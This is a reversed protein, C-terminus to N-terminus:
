PIWVGSQWYMEPTIVVANFLYEGAAGGVAVTSWINITDLIIGDYNAQPNLPWLGMHGDLQVDGAWCDIAYLLDLNEIIGTDTDMRTNGEANYIDFPCYPNGLLVTNNGAIDDITSGLASMYEVTGTINQTDGTTGVTAVTIKIIHDEPKHDSTGPAPSVFQASFVIKLTNQGTAPTNLLWAVYAPNALEGDITINAAATTWGPLVEQLIFGQPVAAEDVDVKIYYDTSTAAVAKSQLVREAYVSGKFRERAWAFKGQPELGTTAALDVVLNEGSVATCIQRMVTAIQIVGDADVYAVYYNALDTNVPGFVAFPNADNLSAAPVIRTVGSGSTADKGSNMAFIADVGDWRDSTFIIFKGDYSFSPYRDNVFLDTDTLRIPTGAVITNLTPDITVRVMWIKDGNAGNNKTYVIQTMEPNFCPDEADTLGLGLPTVTGTPLYIAELDGDRVYVGWRGDSSINPQQLAIQPPVLTAITSGFSGDHNMRNIRQQNADDYLVTGGNGALSPNAKVTGSTTIQILGTTSGDLADAVDARSIEIPNADANNFVFRTDNLGVPFEGITTVIGVGWNALGSALNTREFKAGNSQAPILADFNTQWVSVLGTIDAAYFMDGTTDDLVPNTTDDGYFAPEFEDKLSTATVATEIGTSLDRVYVDFLEYGYTGALQKSYILVDAAGVIKNVNSVLRGYMPTPSENATVATIFGTTADVTFIDQIGAKVGVYAVTNSDSLFVPHKLQRNTEQVLLTSKKTAFNYVWLEHTGTAPNTDRTYALLGATAGDSDPSLTAYRLNQVADARLPTATALTTGAQSSVLYIAYLGAPNATFLIKKGDATFAPNLMVYSVVVGNTVVTRTTGTAINQVKMNGATTLVEGNRVGGTADRTVGEVYVIQGVNRAQAIGSFAFVAALILAVAGFKKFRSM